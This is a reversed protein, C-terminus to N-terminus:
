GMVTNEGAPHPRTLKMLKLRYGLILSLKLEKRIKLCIGKSVELSAGMTRMALSPGHGVRKMKPQKM